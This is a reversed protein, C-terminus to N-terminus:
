YRPMASSAILAVGTVSRIMVAWPTGTSRTPMATFLITATGATSPTTGATPTVTWSPVIATSSISAELDLGVAKKFSIEDDSLDRSNDPKQLGSTILAWHWRPGSLPRTASGGSNRQAHRRSRARRPAPHQVHPVKALASRSPPPDGLIKECDNRTDAALRADREALRQRADSVSASGKFGLIDGCTIQNKRKAM